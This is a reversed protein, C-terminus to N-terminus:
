RTGEGQSKGAPSNSWCRLAPSPRFGPAGLLEPRELPSTLAVRGVGGVALHAERAQHGPGLRLQVSTRVVAQGGVSVM